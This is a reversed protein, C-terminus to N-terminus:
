SHFEKRLFYKGNKKNEFFLDPKKKKDFIMKKDDCLLDLRKCVLFGM